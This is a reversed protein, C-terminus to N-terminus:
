EKDSMNCYHLAEHEGQEDKDGSVRREGFGDKMSSNLALSAPAVPFTGPLCCLITCM